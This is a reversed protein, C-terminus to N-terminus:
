CLFPLFSQGHPAIRVLERSAFVIKEPSMFKADELNEAELLTLFLEYLSDQFNYGTEGGPVPIWGPSQLIAKQFPAQVSGDNKAWVLHHAISGAGASEGMVTVKTPDGGFKAINQQIWDFALKQDHLGLNSTGGEAEFRPGSLFGHAGM